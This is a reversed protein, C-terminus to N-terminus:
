GSVTVNNLPAPAGPKKDTGQERDKWWGHFLFVGVLCNTAIWVAERSESCGAFPTVGSRLDLLLHCILGLLLLPLHQRFAVSMGRWSMLLFPIVVSHGIMNVAMRENALKEIIDPMFLGLALVGGQIVRLHVPNRVDLGIRAFVGGPQKGIKDAGKKSARRMLLFGVVVVVGLFAYKALRAQRHKAAARVAKEANLIGAGYKIEPGGPEVNDVLVQRVQEPDTIGLSVILAAVGAVHPSAMSTGHLPGFYGFSGSGGGSHERRRGETPPIRTNQWVGAAPGGARMDGGPAALDIEPGYSSYSAFEGGPGVASVAICSKYHAPYEVFERNNNGAACVITVGKDHAYDCASEFIKSYSGGGLSMNIVKAGNDAAFKVGDVIDSLAGGKAGLVKIPMITARPAVGAGMLRNGTSEAVTGAVHTGHCHDDCPDEDKNQFDYGKAFDTRDFDTGKRDKMLHKVLVGTDIVAVIVGKGKTYSWAKEMSIMHLHWQKAYEPDNPIYYALYRCQPEAAKVLPSANLAALIGERKAPPVTAVMLKHREAHISNYELRIGFEDNIGDIDKQTVTAELEVVIEAPNYLDETSPAVAAPSAATKIGLFLWLAAAGLMLAALPKLRRMSTRGRKSLDEAVDTDHSCHNNSIGHEADMDVELALDVDTEYDVDWPLDLEFNPNNTQGSPNM